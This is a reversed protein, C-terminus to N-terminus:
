YCNFIIPPMKQGYMTFKGTGMGRIDVTQSTNSANVIDFTRTEYSDLRDLIVQTGTPAANPDMKIDYTINEVTISVASRIELADGFCTEVYLMRNVTDVEGQRTLPAVWFWVAVSAIVAIAILLVVAVVPSIGRM